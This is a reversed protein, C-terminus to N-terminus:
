DRRSARRVLGACTRDLLDALEDPDAPALAPRRALLDAELEAHADVIEPLRALDWVALVRGRAEEALLFRVQHDNRMERFERKRAIAVPVRGLAQVLRVTNGAHTVVVDAARLHRSLEDFPVHRAYACSPTVRSAGIQAFVEHRTCVPDMATVLRDFPFGSMGVTLLVRAM